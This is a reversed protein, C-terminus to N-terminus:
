YELATEFRSRAIIARTRYIVFWHDSYWNSNSNSNQCAKFYVFKICIQTINYELKINIINLKALKM